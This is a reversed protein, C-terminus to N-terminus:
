IERVGKKGRWGEQFDGQAESAPGLVLAYKRPHPLHDLGLLRTEKSLSGVGVGGDIVKM